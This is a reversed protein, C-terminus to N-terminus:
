LNFKKRIGQLVMGFGILGLGFNFTVKQVAGAQTPLTFDGGTVPILVSPTDQAVPPPLTPVQTTVVPTNESGPTTGVTTPTVPSPTPEQPTATVPTNTPTVPTSTPDQPTPTVPTSTPNVPTSTPDQPTATVPTNTPTVPTPTPDQPTPKVPTSTPNVPTSTPDQPTATVPTNTPTVPTPTPDQPTPTVPTSTPTIPTATPDQPTPTVPTNTPTIPTFTPMVPTNTPSEPTNSPVQCSNISCNGSWVISSDPHEAPQYAKFIYNGGVGNPSYELSACQHSPLAPISGGSVVSGTTPDGNASFYVEYASPQDMNGTGDNCVQVKIITCNGGCSGRFVLTAGNWAASVPANIFSLLTAAIVLTVGFVYSIRTILKFGNRLNLSM